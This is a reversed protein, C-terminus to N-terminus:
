RNCCSETPLSPKRPRNQLSISSLKRSRTVTAVHTETEDSFWISVTAGSLCTGCFVPELGEGSPDDLGPALPPITVYLIFPPQSPHNGLHQTIHVERKNTPGWEVLAPTSWQFNGVEVSRAAETTDPFRLSVTAGTYGNGSFTPQYDDTHKVNIVPPLKKDVEFEFPLSDIWGGANDYIQKIAVLTRRGLEWGTATTTWTDDNQVVAVAPANGQGTKVSFQIRTPFNPYYRGTGSFRVTTEDPWYIVPLEPKPPFIM